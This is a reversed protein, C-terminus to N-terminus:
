FFFFFSLFSFFSSSPTGAGYQFFVFLFVIYRLDLANRHLFAEEKWLHLWTEQTECFCLWWMMSHWISGYPWRWDDKLTPLRLTTGQMLSHLGTSSNQRVGLPIVCEPLPWGSSSHISCFQCCHDQRASAGLFGNSKMRRWGVWAAKVTLTKRM